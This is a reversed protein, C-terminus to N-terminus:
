QAHACASFIHMFYQMIIIYDIMEFELKSNYKFAVFYM